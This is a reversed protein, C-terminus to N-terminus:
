RGYSRTPQRPPAPSANSAWERFARRQRLIVEEQEEQDGAQDHDVRACFRRGDYDRFVVGHRPLQRRIDDATFSGPSNQLALAVLRKEPVLAHGKTFGQRLADVIVLDLIAPPSPFGAGAASAALASRDSEDDLRALWLQRLEAMGLDKCKHRRTAAGIGDKESPDTIGREEAIGEIQATRRSFRPVLGTLGAIEWGKATKEVAFGKDAVAKALHSLFVAQYYPADRYIDAIKSAKWQNEVGDWTANFIFCHAHLHPDPVGDVPRATLHIHQSYLMEGTTRDEMQGRKRVRTQMATEMEELTAALASRFATLIAAEGKLLLALSVSKPVHFNFDYGVTRGNRHRATLKGGDPKRNGCIADFDGKAVEGSLALREAGKGGWTGPLEQQGGLYYEAKSTYYSRAAKANSQKNIRLMGGLM